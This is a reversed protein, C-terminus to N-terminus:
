KHTHQRLETLGLTRIPDFPEGYTTYQENLAKAADLAAAASGHQDILFMTAEKVAASNANRQGKILAGLQEAAEEAAKIETRNEEDIKSSESIVFNRLERIDKEKREEQRTFEKGAGEAVGGWFNIDSFM